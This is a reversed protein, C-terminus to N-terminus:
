QFSIPASQRAASFAAVMNLIRNLLSLDDTQINWFVPTKHKTWAASRLLEPDFEFVDERM